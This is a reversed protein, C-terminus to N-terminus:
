RLRFTQLASRILALKKTRSWKKIQAERKLAASRTPYEEHYRAKLAPNAKTYRCGKGSFHENLRRELNNTIGTYLSRDTCELIYVYYPM